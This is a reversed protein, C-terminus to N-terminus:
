LLGEEKLYKKLRDRVRFLRVNVYNCTVGLSEAIEPIERCFWYRQIFIVRDKRKLTNLFVNVYASIEEAMVEDEVMHESVLCESIEELAMDYRSNRKQAALAHYKKLALNKTIGCIYASLPSPREPPIRQWVALYADNVCEEVDRSDRLIRNALSRCLGGYKGALEAIAYESRNWFLEVIKRDEM